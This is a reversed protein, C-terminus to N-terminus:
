RRVHDKDQEFIHNQARPNWEFKFDDGLEKRIVAIVAELVDDLVGFSAPNDEDNKGTEGRFVGTRVLCTNWGHMNGGCIDSAPNDGVMYVNEPLKSGEGYLSEMWRALVEEAYVYAAREPKGYIVRELEVGTLAKYMGELGIRFAGQSMRPQLHGNPFILDGHSFYIPIRETVPDSSVTGLRGHSSRLLDVILQLDTAYDRSSSLVLIANINIRSFDRPNAAALEARSLKKFPSITPDWALIDHPVVIDTFGYHQAVKKCREGEGGIILVTSYYEKLAQM